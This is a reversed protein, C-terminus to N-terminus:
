PTSTRSVKLSEWAAWVHCSRALLSHRRSLTLSDLATTSTRQTSGETTKLWLRLWVPHLDCIDFSFRRRLVCLCRPLSSVVPRM